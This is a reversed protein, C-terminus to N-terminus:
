NELNKKALYHYLSEHMIRRGTSSAIFAAIMFPIALIHEDTMEMVIIVATLPAQIAGSFFAVMGFLACAKFNVFGIIKATLLGIGAGISLSPSFIGGAMGSLYSLATTLLKFFPFILSFESISDGDLFKKTVEYGSGSTDGHTYYAM